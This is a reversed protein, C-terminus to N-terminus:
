CQHLPVSQLATMDNSIYLFLVDEDSKTPIVGIPKPFMLLTLIMICNCWKLGFDCSDFM